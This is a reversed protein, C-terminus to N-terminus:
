RVNPKLLFKRTAARKLNAISGAPDLDKPCAVSCNFVTHCRWVGHEDSVLQLRQEEADDRSDVFFRNAKLLAAPGIYEEDSATMPCSSHCSACLICDVVVDMKERDAQSQVREQDAQPPPSGPILYPLIRKYHKWFPKMDVVLDRIIPLHALPRITMPSDLAPSAQTECALAYKGNMHLACSGCIAARCSFRFCLSPDVHDQIYFLADLVTMGERYPIEFLQFRPEKENDPDFRFINFKAKKSM